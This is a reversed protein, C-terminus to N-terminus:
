RLKISICGRLFPSDSAFVANQNISSSFKFRHDLEDLTSSLSIIGHRDSKNHYYNFGIKMAAECMITDSCMSDKNALEESFVRMIHELERMEYLTSSTERSKPSFVHTAPNQLSYYVPFKNIKFNLYVPQMITPIYKRLGYIQSYANQIISIPMASDDTAPTYGPAAGIATTFIHKATDVLYPNPKLNRQQQIISFIIDYNIRNIEFGFQTWAAEHLYKNLDIWARDNFIKNIWKESFYLVCCRWDSKIAPCNIIEKFVGWHEYYSKPPQKRVNFERQLNSHHTICGINPLLFSSRSGSVSSLLGNPSYIVNSKSKLIGSLPFMKGPTYIMWPISINNKKLDIFSEIQKDLVMGLPTSNASYGLDKLVDKPVDKDTLRYYSGIANPFLSSQTDADMCGYPYYALYLVFSKDPNINDVIKAFQPEVKAVQKRVESWCTKVMGNKENYETVM